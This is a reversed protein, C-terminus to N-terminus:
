WVFEGIRHGVRQWTLVETAVRHATQLLDQGVLVAICGIVPAVTGIVSIPQVGDGRNHIVARSQHAVCKSGDHVAGGGHAVQACSQKAGYVGPEAVAPGTIPVAPRGTKTSEARAIAPSGAPTRKTGTSTESGAPALEPM